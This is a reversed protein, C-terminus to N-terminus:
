GGGISSCEVIRGAGVICYMEAHRWDGFRFALASEVVAEGM